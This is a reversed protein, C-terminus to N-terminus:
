ALLGAIVGAFATLQTVTGRTAILWQTILDLKEWETKEYLKIPRQLAVVWMAPNINM